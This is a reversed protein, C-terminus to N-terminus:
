VVDKSDKLIVVEDVNNETDIGTDQSTYEFRLILGKGKFKYETANGERVITFLDGKSLDSLKRKM